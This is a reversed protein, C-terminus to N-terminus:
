LISRTILLASLMSYLGATIPDTNIRIVHLRVGRAKYSAIVDRYDQEDVSTSYAIAEVGRRMSLVSELPQPSCGTSTCHYIAGPKAAPTYLAQLVSYEPNPKLTERVWDLATSLEGLEAELRGARPGMQRPAWYLSALAMTLIPPASSPIEVLNVGLMEAKERYAPHLEPAVLVVNRAGMLSATEALGLGRPDRGSPSYVLVTDLDRYPAIHRAAEVSHAILSRSGSHTLAMYMIRAPAEAEGTYAVLVEGELKPRPLEKAAELAIKYAEEPSSHPSKLPTAAAADKM